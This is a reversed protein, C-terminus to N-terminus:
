NGGELNKLFYVTDLEIQNAIKKVGELTVNEINEIIKEPTENVKSVMQSYYFESLGAISDNLSKIGNIISKKSNEFELEEIKGSKMNDLEIQILEMTKKYNKIEIGSGIFMLGKYKELTSYIYYCMSQEERIHNFMKSHAGGGLISSYLILDYYNKERFDVYTRFGLVLKGQTVDFKEEKVKVDKVKIDIKEKEIKADRDVIFKSWENKLINLTKEHDINGTIVIDIPSQMIIKKYYDFLSKPTMKELDEEYGYEFISYPEDECMVEICREIAYRGKDNIRSSILDKLNFAELDFFEKKFAEEEILPNFVIEKLFDLGQEFINDEVLSDEILSLKFSIIQKEGKKSSDVALGAGYMNQLTKTIQVPNNMKKTASKLVYPLMSNYTVEEKNLPRKIYLSLFNSKFKDSKITILNMNEALCSQKVNNM